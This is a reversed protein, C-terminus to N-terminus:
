GGVNTAVEKGTLKPSFLDSESIGLAKAIREQWSPFLPRLGREIQSLDSSSIGTLQTLKTLSWGKKLREERIRNM